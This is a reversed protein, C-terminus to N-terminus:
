EVEAKKSACRRGRDVTFEAHCRAGAAAVIHVTFLVRVAASFRSEPDDGIPVWLCVLAARLFMRLAAAAAFLRRVSAWKGFFVLVARPLCAAFTLFRRRRRPQAPADSLCLEEPSGQASCPPPTTNSDSINHPKINISHLFVCASHTLRQLPYGLVRFCALDVAQSPPGPAHFRDQVGQGDGFLTVFSAQSSMATSDVSPCAADRGHAKRGLQSPRRHQVASGQMGIAQPDLFQVFNELDAAVRVV